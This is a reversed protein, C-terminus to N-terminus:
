DFDILGYVRVEGGGVGGRKFVSNMDEFQKGRGSAVDKSVWVNKSSSM